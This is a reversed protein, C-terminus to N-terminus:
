RWVDLDSEQWIMHARVGVEKARQRIGEFPTQPDLLVLMVHFGSRKMRLMNEFLTNDAHATIIIATGGWTLQQNAQQFLESFPLQEAVRIRALTGLIGMLQERGKRPPLAVMPQDAMLPDVGNTCLGVTQRKEILFHAFSAAVVIALETAIEARSTSYEGRNLNLLIHSEISIAPEFRKVQLVGKSATTKWHIHRMSDGSQYDRVGVMRAPDEFIHQKAPIAGFPTQAPLALETLPVIQPYVMLYDESPVEVEQTHMGFLDGSSLLLPGLPYYGRRRCELDYTLRAEEKPLLSLVHNFFSPSKLQIPLSEHIRLWAVPLLNRNRLHLTVLLREGLFARDTYERKCEVGRLTRSTWVRSLFFVGFLVYLLYFFFDVRFLAALLFLGVIFVLLNQM